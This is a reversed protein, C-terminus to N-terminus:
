KCAYRESDSDPKVPCDESEYCVVANGECVGQAIFQIYHLSPITIPRDFSVDGDANIVSLFGLNTFLFSKVAEPGTAGTTNRNLEAQKYKVEPCLVSPASSNAKACAAMVGELRLNYTTFAQGEHVSANAILVHTIRSTNKPRTALISMAKTDAGQTV